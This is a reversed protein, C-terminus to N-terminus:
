GGNSSGVQQAQIEQYKANWWRVADPHQEISIWTVNEPSSPDGGFILPTVYWKIKGRMQDDSGLSALNIKFDFDRLHERSIPVTSVTFYRGGADRVILDDWGRLGVATFGPLLNSLGYRETMATAEAQEEFLTLYTNDHWGEIM